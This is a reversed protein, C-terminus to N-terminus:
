RGNCLTKLDGSTYPSVDGGTCWKGLMPQVPLNLFYTCSNYDLVNQYTDPPSSKPTVAVKTKLTFSNM